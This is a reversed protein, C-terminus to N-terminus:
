LQLQACAGNVAAPLLSWMDGVMEDCGSAIANGHLMGHMENVPQLSRQCVVHEKIRGLCLAFHVGCSHYWVTVFIAKCPFM